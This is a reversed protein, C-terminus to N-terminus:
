PEAFLFTLVRPFRAAWDAERHQGGEIEKIHLDRDATLGAGQFESKLRRLRPIEPSPEDPKGGERTGMDIWVRLRKVADHHTKVDQLIQENSWWLSPSLAAVKGFTEPHRLAIELSILGGLSSGALATHEPEPRTRYTRDIFPKLEEVLFRAYPEGRGGRERDADKHTTYENMRDNTNFIGIMILPPITGERILRAATEDAQWEHGFAATAADFLNQGDHLYLVPYRRPASAKYGPPLWVAVTRSNVLHKSGFEQHLRIDGTATSEPPAAGRAGGWALVEVDVVRDRDILLVRDPRDSGERGREVFRWSGQTIKYRLTHGRPLQVTASFRGEGDRTLAVGDPKWRGVGPESGALFIRATAPTSDPVSVRFTVPVEDGVGLAGLVLLTAIM